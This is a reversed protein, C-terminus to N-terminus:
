VTHAFFEHKAALGQFVRGICTDIKALTKHACNSKCNWDKSQYAFRYRYIPLQVIQHIDKLAIPSDLKQHPVFHSNWCDDFNRICTPLSCIDKVITPQTLWQVELDRHDCLRTLVSNAAHFIRREERTLIDNWTTSLHGLSLIIAFLYGFLRPSNALLSQDRYWDVFTHFNPSHQDKYSGQISGIVLEVWVSIEYQCTAIRTAQMYTIVSRLVPQKLDTAMAAFPTRQLVMLLQSYTWSDLNKMGFRAALTGADALRGVLTSNHNPPDRAATIFSTYEKDGIKGLVTFLFESFQTATVNPLIVPYKDNTGPKNSSTNTRDLVGEMLEKYEFDTVGPDAVLRLAYVKFLDEGVLFVVSGDEYYYEPHRHYKGQDQVPSIPRPLQNNTPSESKPM